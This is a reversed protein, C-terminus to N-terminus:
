KDINRLVKNIVYFLSTTSAFANHMISVSNALWEVTSIYNMWIESLCYGKRLLQILPSLSEYLAIAM